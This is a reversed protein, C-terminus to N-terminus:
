TLVLHQRLRLHRLVELASSLLKGWKYSVLARSLLQQALWSQWWHGLWWRAASLGSHRARLTPKRARKPRSALPPDGSDPMMAAQRRRSAMQLWCYKHVTHTALHCWFYSWLLAVKNTLWVSVIMLCKECVSSFCWNFYRYLGMHVQFQGLLQYHNYHVSLM